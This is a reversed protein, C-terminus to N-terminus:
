FLIMVLNVFGDTKTRRWRKKSGVRMSNGYCMVVNMNNDLFDIARALAGDALVDDAHLITFYDSQAWDISKNFSAHM